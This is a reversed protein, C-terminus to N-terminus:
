KDGYYVKNLISFKGISSEGYVCATAENDCTLLAPKLNRRRPHAGFERHVDALVAHNRSRKKGSYDERTGVRPLDPVSSLRSNEQFSGASEYFLLLYEVVM